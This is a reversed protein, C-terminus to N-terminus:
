RDPTPRVSVASSAYVFCCAVDFGCSLRGRASFTPHLLAIRSCISAIGVSTVEWAHFHTHDVSDMMTRTICHLTSFLAREVAVAFRCPIHSLLTCLTCPFVSIYTTPLTLSLWPGHTRKRRSHTQQVDDEEERREGGRWYRCCFIVLM